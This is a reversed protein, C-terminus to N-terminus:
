DRESLAQLGGSGCIVRDRWRQQIHVRSARKEERVSQFIANKESNNKTESTERNSVSASFHTFKVGFM